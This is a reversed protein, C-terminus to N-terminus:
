EGLELLTLYQEPVDALRDGNRGCILAPGHIAGDCVLSAYENLPYNKLLGEEDVIMVAGDPLTITEIYGGVENQLTELEDAIDRISISNLEIKIARM